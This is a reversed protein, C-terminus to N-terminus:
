YIYPIMKKTKFQYAKYEDGFYRILVQEEVKIRISFALFILIFVILLSLWNNLALGFGLFSLMSFAYSPHRVLRYYGTTKLQHSSKITVNVTFFEGLSQIVLFRFIMGIVIIILGLKSIIGSNMIQFSYNSSYIGLFIAMFILIWILVLTGKDNGSQNNKGRLRINYFVESSFWVLCVINFLVNM